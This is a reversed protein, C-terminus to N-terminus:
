IDTDDYQILTPNNEFLYQDPNWASMGGPQGLTSQDYDSSPVLWIKAGAPYNYDTSCPLDIGLDISSSTTLIAGTGSTMFTAILAGPCDGPWGDADCDAYYILNYEETNELGMAHFTYEFVSGASNYMLEGEINDSDIAQWTNPDKNEMYLINGTPSTAEEQYAVFEEDFTLIDGQYENGAQENFHFSQMVLLPIGPSLSMKLPIWKDELSALTELDKEDFSYIIEELYGDCIGNDNSDICVSLDYYIQNDLDNKEANNSCSGDWTGGEAKCESENEIGTGTFFNGIRMWVNSPNSTVIIKKTVIENYGPKMDGLSFPLIQSEGTITLDITGATFTNGESTETDSFYAVTGGIVIASVVGVVALSILIKKM